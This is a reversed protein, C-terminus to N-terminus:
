IALLQSLSHSKTIGLWPSVIQQTHKDKALQIRPYTGAGTLLILRIIILCHVKYLMETVSMTAQTLM